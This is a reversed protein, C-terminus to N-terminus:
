LSTSIGNLPNGIEHAFVAATTGVAALRESEQLRDQILKQETMDRTLKAFGYLRGTEDTLATILVNAWFRSGDKRVRWGTTEYRGASRAIALGKAPLDGQMDEEAYFQSFHKGIIEDAAYGKLREAGRNWSVVYGDPALM